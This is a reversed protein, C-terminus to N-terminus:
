PEWRRVVVTVEDVTVDAAAAEPTRYRERLDATLRGVLAEALAANAAEVDAEAVPEDIDTGVADAATWYRAATSEATRPDVLAARTREPPFAWEVYAAALARGLTKFSGAADADPPAIGSDVTLTTAAVDASEPPRRSVALAVPSRVNTVARHSGYGSATTPPRSVAPRRGGSLASTAAVVRATSLPM